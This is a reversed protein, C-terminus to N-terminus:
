RKRARGNSRTEVGVIQSCQALPQASRVSVLRLTIMRRSAPSSGWTLSSQFQSLPRKAKGYRPISRRVTGITRSFPSSREAEHGSAM